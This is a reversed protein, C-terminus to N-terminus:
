QQPPSPPPPEPQRLWPRRTGFRTDLVAGLGVIAVLIAVIPGLVPVLGLLALVLAGVLVKALLSTHGSGPRLIRDGVVLAIAAYGLVGAVLYLIVWVPILPIGILTVALLVIGPVFLLLALLGILACRGLRTEAMTAVATAAGPWIAVILLSLVLVGLFQAIRMVGFLPWPMNMYHWPMRGRRLNRLDFRLSPISVSTVDGGVFAGPARRISGGVTTVDGGVRAQDGLVVRSGVSVVDGDVAGYVSVPGGISVADETVHGHVSIEGGIAVVSGQVTEDPDVEISGGVVFSSERSREQAGAVGSVAGCAILTTVVALLVPLVAVFARAAGSGRGARSGAHVGVVCVERGNDIRTM